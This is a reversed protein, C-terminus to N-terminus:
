PQQMCWWVVSTNNSKCCTEPLSVCVMLCGCSNRRRKERITEKLSEEESVSNNISIVCLNLFLEAIIIVVDIWSDIHLMEMHYGHCSSMKTTFACRNYFGFRIKTTSPLDYSNQDEDLTWRSLMELSWEAGDFISLVDNDKFSILEWLAARGNTLIDCLSNSTGILLWNLIASHSSIDLALHKM